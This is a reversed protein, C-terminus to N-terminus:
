IPNWVGAVPRGCAPCAGDKLANRVIAFGAREILLTGDHPCYTHESDSGFVNGVYAHRLGAEFAEQRARLLLEEPTPPLNRIKYM